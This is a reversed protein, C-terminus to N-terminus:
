MMVAHGHGHRAAPGDHRGMQAACQLRDGVPPAAGGGRRQAGAPIPGAGCQLRGRLYGRPGGLSKPLSNM